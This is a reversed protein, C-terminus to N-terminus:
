LDLVIINIQFKMEGTISNSQARSIMRKCIVYKFNLIIDLFYVWVWLKMIHQFIVSETLLIDKSLESIRWKPM